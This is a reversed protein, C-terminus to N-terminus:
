KSCAFLVVKTEEGLGEMFSASWVVSVRDVLSDMFSHIQEVEKMKIQYEQSSYIMLHFSDFSTLDKKDFLPFRCAIDIAKSIRNEGAAAGTGMVTYGSDHYTAYLDAFDGCTYGKWPFSAEFETILEYQVRHLKTFAESLKTEPYHKLILESNLEFVANALSRIREISNKAQKIKDEGEFAFPITLFCITLVHEHIIAEMIEPLLDAGIDGGMGAFLILIRAGRTYQILQKKTQESLSKKEKIHVKCGVPSKRLLIDDTDCIIYSADCVGNKHMMNIAKIGGRGVGLIRMFGMENPQDTINDM